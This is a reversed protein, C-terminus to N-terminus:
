EMNWATTWKTTCKEPAYGTHSIGSGHLRNKRPQSPSCRKADDPVFCVCVWLVSPDVVLVTTKASSIAAGKDHVEM